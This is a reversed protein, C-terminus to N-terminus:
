ASCVAVGGYLIPRNYVEASDSSINITHKEDKKRVSALADASLLRLIILFTIHCHILLTVILRSMEIMSLCIIFLTVPSRERSKTSEIGYM